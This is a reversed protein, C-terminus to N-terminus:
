EGETAPPKPLPRWHTPTVEPSLPLGFGAKMYWKPENHPKHAWYFCTARGHRLPKGRVKTADPSYFDVMSDNGEIWLDVLTGDKPATEIPQWTTPQEYAKLLDYLMRLPDTSRFVINGKSDYGSKLLFEDEEALRAKIEDLRQKDM